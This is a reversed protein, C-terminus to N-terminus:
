RREHTAQEDALLAFAAVMLALSLVGTAAFLTTWM